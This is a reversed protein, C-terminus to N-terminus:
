DLREGIHRAHDRLADRVKAVRQGLKRVEVGQRDALAEFERRDHHKMSLAMKREHLDATLSDVVEVVAELTTQPDAEWRLSGNQAAGRQFTRLHRQADALDKEVAALERKLGELKALQEASIPARRAQRQEDRAGRRESTRVSFVDVRRHALREADSGAEGLAHFGLTPMAGPDSRELLSGSLARTVADCRTLSLRMNPGEDGEISAYGRIEMEAVQSELSM